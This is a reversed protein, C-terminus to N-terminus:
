KYKNNGSNGTEWVYFHRVQIQNICIWTRGRMVFAEVGRWFDRLTDKIMKM